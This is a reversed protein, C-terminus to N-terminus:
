PSVVVSVRRSTAGRYPYGPQATLRAQFRYRAKVLTRRFRYTFRFRGKADARVSGIPLRRRADPVLVDVTLRTGKRAPGGKLRGRFRIQEGNRVSRPNVKLRIGAKVGLSIAATSVPAPDLSYAKYGFTVTRSPGKAIRYAFRGDEGTTVTGTATRRAGPRQVRSSVELVAGAIPKGASDTLRGEAFRTAGYRVTAARRPKDRKSRLWASLKVFRSAGRGNPQSGNLTTVTVPDSRTENGAADTVSAQVTHTGNPLQATDFAFTASTSSPCPVRALFPRRCRTATSPVARRQALVVGDVVIGVTEIGAGRDAVSLTATRSGEHPADPAFLSGDPPRVFTPPYLDSLGIRASYIEFWGHDAGPECGFSGITDCVIQPVIQQVQTGNVSLRNAADFPHQRGVGRGRCSAFGSCFEAYHENDFPGLLGYSVVFDHYWGGGGAVHATRYLTLDSITTYRPATFVFGTADGRDVSKTIDARLAGTPAGTRPSLCSNSVFSGPKGSVFGTWGDTPAPQGNPLTCAYVDYRGANAMTPLAALAVLAAMIARKALAM